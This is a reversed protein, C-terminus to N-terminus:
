EPTGPSAPFARAAGRVHLGVEDGPIHPVSAPDFIRAVVPTGDTLRLAPLADHGQCDRRLVTATVATATDPSVVEIQEPRLLVRGATSQPRNAGTAVVPVLGLPTRARDGGEGTQQECCRCGKNAEDDQGDGGGLPRHPPATPSIPSPCTKSPVTTFTGRGPAM